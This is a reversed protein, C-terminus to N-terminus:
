RFKLSLKLRRMQLYLNHHLQLKDSCPKDTKRMLREVTELSLKLPFDYIQNEAYTMEAVQLAFHSEVNYLCAQGLAQKAFITKSNRSVHIPVILCFSDCLMAHDVANEIEYNYQKVRVM